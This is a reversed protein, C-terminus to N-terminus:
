VFNLPFIRVLDQKKLGREAKFHSNLPTSVNCLADLFCKSTCLGPIIERIQAMNALSITTMTPTQEKRQTEHHEPPGAQTGTQVTKKEARFTM